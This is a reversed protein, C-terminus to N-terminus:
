QTNIISTAPGRTQKPLNTTHTTEHKLVDRKELPPQVQPVRTTTSHLLPYPSRACWVFVSLRLQIHQNPRWLNNQRGTTTVISHQLTHKQTLIYCWFSMQTSVEAGGCEGPCWWVECVGSGWGYKVLQYSKHTCRVERYWCGRSKQFLVFHTTKWVKVVVYVRPYGNKREHGGLYIFIIRPTPTTSNTPRPTWKPSLVPLLLPTNPHTNKSPFITDFHCAHTGRRTGVSVWVGSYRVCVIGGLM